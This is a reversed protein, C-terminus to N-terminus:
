TVGEESRKRERLVDVRQDLELVQGPRVVVDGILCGPNQVQQVSGPAALSGFARRDQDVAPVCLSLSVSLSMTLCQTTRQDTSFKM